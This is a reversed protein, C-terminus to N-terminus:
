LYINNSSTVNKDIIEVFDKLKLSTSRILLNLEKENILFANCVRKIDKEKNNNVKKM